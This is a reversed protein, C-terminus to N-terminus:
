PVHLNFSSSILICPASLVNCLLPYAPFFAFQQDYRYGNESIDFNYVADWKLFPATLYLALQSAGTRCSEDEKYIYPSSIDYDGALKSSIIALCLVVLRSLLAYRSVELVARGLTGAAKKAKMFDM